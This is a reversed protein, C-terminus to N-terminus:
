PSTKQLLALLEERKEMIKGTNGSVQTLLAEITALENKIFDLAQNKIEDITKNIRVEWQYALRSLHIDVVSPIQKIFHREFIKRFIFMPFLFWLLDFHFDFTKTFAVDPHEPESVEVVWNVSNPKIGLVKEINRDLLNRFLEVSRAISSHAKKLTGFFQKYETRSIHDMETTLNEMLWNEYQRTIKWLNGKWQSMDEILKKTLRQILKSRHHENLYTSILERTMLKSERAILSLESQILEYNVKEDFIIKKLQERESDAAVSTKLAIDLYSVCQRTVSRLKHNLIGRFESDRNISLSTLLKDIWRKYLETDKVISYMLIQFEINFEKKLSDKFFKVVEKQQEESLLDVKTLLIVVRPTFEMLEKILNLDNESLPRDSSVAIIAAGVEPLWEESLETNYKFISGLGPTDVIRLGPYDILNPLEIDVVEVNKKNATNKSESIYEEIEDLRVNIKKKDFFTVTALEQPGYQIRTIVTTVPIAGVPLVKKGIISNIFSSKGAKFQGLIAVDIIPSEKSLSECVEIQRNLSVIQFEKTIDKIRKLILLPINADTKSEINLLGKEEM